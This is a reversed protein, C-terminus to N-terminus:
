DFLRYRDKWEDLDELVYEYRGYLFSAPPPPYGKIEGSKRGERMESLTVGMMMEFEHKVRFFRERWRWREPCGCKSCEGYTM